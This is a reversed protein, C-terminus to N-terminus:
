SLGKYMKISYINITNKKNHLIRVQKTRLIGNSNQNDEEKEKIKENLEDMAMLEKKSLAAVVAAGYADGLM